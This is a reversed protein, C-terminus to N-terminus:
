NIVKGKWFFVATRMCLGSSGRGSYEFGEISLSLFVRSLRANVRAYYMDRALGRITYDISRDASGHRLDASKTLSKDGRRSLSLRAKQTEIKFISLFIIHLQTDCGGRARGKFEDDDSLNVIGSLRARALVAQQRYM